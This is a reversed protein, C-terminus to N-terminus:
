SPNLRSPCSPLRHSDATQGRLVAAIGIHPDSLAVSAALIAVGVIAFVLQELASMFTAAEVPLTIL